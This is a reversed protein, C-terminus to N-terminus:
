LALEEAEGEVQPHGHYHHHVRAGPAFVVFPSPAPPGLAEGAAEAQLHGHCHHPLRVVQGSVASLSPVAQSQTYVSHPM